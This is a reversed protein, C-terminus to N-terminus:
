LSRRLLALATQGFSQIVFLLSMARVVPAAEPRHFFNAMLGGVMIGVLSLLAGLVIQATFLFKTDKPTLDKRQVLAAGFGLDAMLMGAGIMLWGIAITGFAAPGLLRALLLGILFQSLARTGNGIYNWKLANLGRDVLTDNPNNAM